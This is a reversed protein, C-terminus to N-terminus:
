PFHPIDSGTHYQPTMTSAEFGWKWPRCRGHRAIGSGGGRGRWQPMATGDSSPTRGGASAGNERPTTTTLAEGDGTPAAMWPSEWTTSGLCAFNISDFIDWYRTLVSPVSMSYDSRRERGGVIASQGGIGSHTREDREQSANTANNIYRYMSRAACGRSLFFHLCCRRIEAGSGVTRGPCMRKTSGELLTGILIELHSIKGTRCSSQGRADLVGGGSGYMSRRHCISTRSRDGNTM